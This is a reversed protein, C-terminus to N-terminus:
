ILKKSRAIYFAIAGPIIPLWYTAFRFALAVALATTGNVGYAMFGGVLGAEVGALGGPTPVAAGLLVAGTYVIFLQSLDLWVGFSRAALHLILVNILTLTGLALVTYVLKHPQREYKRLSALLNRTFSALARQVRPVALGLVIVLVFGLLLWGQKYSWGLHLKGGVGTLVVLALLSIHVTMGVLNNVSVVATAEAVTHTRKHLYLGHVGVGGLGSPVLRNIFAAALEVVLLERFRLRRFALFGYASAALFFTVGVLPVAVWFYGLSVSQLVTFSQALHGWNRWLFVAVILM